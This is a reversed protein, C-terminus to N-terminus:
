AGPRAGPRAEPSRRFLYEQMGNGLLMTREATLGGLHASLTKQRYRPSPITEGTTPEVVLEHNANPAMRAPTAPMTPTAYEILAHVVGGPALREIMPALVAEIATPRLYNLFNWCLIVEVPEAKSDPLCKQAFARMRDGDEMTDLEALSDTLDLIDLRCRRGVLLEITGARAPGLDLLVHRTEPDLGTIISEFLPARLVAPANKLASQEATASM